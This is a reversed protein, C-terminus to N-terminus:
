RLSRCHNIELGSSSSVDFEHGEDGQNGAGAQTGLRGQGIGAASNAGPRGISELEIFLFRARSAVTAQTAHQGGKDGIWENQGGPQATPM